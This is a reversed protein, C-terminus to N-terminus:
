RASRLLDGFRQSLNRKIHVQHDHNAKWHAADAQSEALRRGLEQITGMARMVFVTRIDPVTMHQEYFPVQGNDIFDKIEEPTLPSDWAWQLDSRPWDDDNTTTMDGKKM